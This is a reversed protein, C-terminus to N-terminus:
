MSTPADTLDDYQGVVTVYIRPALLSTSTDESAADSPEFKEDPLVEISDAEVILEGRRAGKKWAVRSLEADSLLLRSDVRCTM